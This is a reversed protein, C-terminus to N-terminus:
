IAVLAEEEEHGALERGIANDYLSKWESINLWPEGDVIVEGETVVGLQEYPHDGMQKTFAGVQNQKVTVIVRSQAEGFLFADKRVSKNTTIDYGLERNFGSETLAVFVGGESIDHASVIAKNKILQSIKQQLVFEEELDFHSIRATLEVCRNGPTVDAKVILTRVTRYIGRWGNTHHSQQIAYFIFHRQVVLFRPVHYKHDAGTVIVNM